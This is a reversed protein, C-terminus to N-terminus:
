EALPRYRGTLHDVLSTIMQERPGRRDFTHNAGDVVSVTAQGAQVLRRAAQGATSMLLGYGPDFRSFVFTLATGRATVRELDATLDRRPAARSLSRARLGRLARALKALTTRDLQRLRSWTRLRGLSPAHHRWSLGSADPEDLSMGPTYYFVLPNILVAEAIADGELELAAHFATHAGSCLGMAIVPAPPEAARPVADIAARIVASAGGVYPDAARDMAGGDSDGLGPLDLRLCRLGARSLARALQVHLRGPGVHHTAGANSLVVLPASKAAGGVPESLVGFLSGGDGSQVWSESVGDISAEARYGGIASDGIAAHVQAQDADPPADVARPDATIWDVIAEIAAGPVRARHPLAMMDPLGTLARVAVARAPGAWIDTLEDPEPRDDRAGILIRASRPSTQRLDIRAIERQTDLTTICGGAEFDGSADAGAVETGAIRELAKLERVYAAGRVCPAWLALSSVDVAEAALAALTAGMRVGVLGVHGVDPNTRLWAIAALVSSVWASVRNPDEDRGASNGTGDYDFRVAAVGSQALRDALYRLSRYSNFYEIGLPPCVAVALARRAGSAPTHCWGFLPRDAPGFWMPTRIVTDTM